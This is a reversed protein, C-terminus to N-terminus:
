PNLIRGPAGNAGNETHCANCDGHPAKQVMAREIGNKTVKVNIPFVLATANTSLTFNGTAGSTLTVKRGTSDTLVVSTGQVGYCKDPEHSTPYITGGVQLIPEGAFSNHCTICAKGPNMKTSKDSSTWTTASTCVSQVVGADTTPSGADTLASTGADSKTTAGADKTTTGSEDGDDDTSEGCTGKPYGDAIWKAFVKQETSTAKTGKPPMPDDASKMRALSAEAVTQTDDSESQAVLDDYTVLAMPAKKADADHCSRCKAELLADIDCPLGTAKTATKGGGGDGTTDEPDPDTPSKDTTPNASDKELPGVYCAAAATVTVGLVLALSAFRM